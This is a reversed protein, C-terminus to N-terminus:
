RARAVPRSVRRGVSPKPSPPTQPGRLQELYVQAAPGLPVGLETRLLRSFRVMSQLAQVGNGEQVYLRALLVQTTERYPEIRTAALIAQEALGYEGQDLLEQGVTELARLRMMAHTRREEVLWEEGWGPLLRLSLTAVLGAAEPIALVSGQSLRRAAHRADALDLSVDGAIHVLSGSTDLLGPAACRIKYLVDRVRGLASSDDHDPWLAAAIQERTVWERLAVFALLHQPGKCLSVPEGQAGSLLFPGLVQLAYRHTRAPCM